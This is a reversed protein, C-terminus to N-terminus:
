IRKMWTTKAFWKGIGLWLFYALVSIFGAFFASVPTVDEGFTRLTGEEIIRIYEPTGTRVYNYGVLDAVSMM